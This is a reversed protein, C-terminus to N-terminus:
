PVLRRRVFDDARGTVRLVENVLWAGRNIVVVFLDGAIGVRRTEPTVPAFVLGRPADGNSFSAFDVRSGEDTLAFIVGAQRDAVFLHGAPSLAIGAPMPGRLVLTPRGDRAIRWIEGPGQQWPAEANGDAGIWLQDREDMALVRPRRVEVWRPDLVRGRPDLRVVVGQDRDAVYLNGASDVVTGEPQRFLPPLGAPPTGGAFLEARGDLLRYLAGLGRDRDFATVFLERRTRVAGVQPNRLPPGHLYPAEGDPLLRAGGVPIRYVPSLDDAEGGVYRRGTRALYLTGADDFALTSTAPIGRPRRATGADYGVGTVYVQATFGPPLTVEAAPTAPTLM